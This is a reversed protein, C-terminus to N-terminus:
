DALRIRGTDKAAVGRPRPGVRTPDDPARPAAAAASASRVSGLPVSPGAAAGSGRRAGDAAGAAPRRAPHERGPPDPARDVDAVAEGALLQMDGAGTPDADLDVDAPHRERRGGYLQEAIAAAALQCERADLVVLEQEGEVRPEPGLKGCKTEEVDVPAQRDEALHM